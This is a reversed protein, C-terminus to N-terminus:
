KNLVYEWFAVALVYLLVVVVLIRRSLAFLGVIQPALTAPLLFQTAIVWCGLFAGLGGAVVWYLSPNHKYKRWYTYNQVFIFGGGVIVVIDTVIQAFSGIDIM